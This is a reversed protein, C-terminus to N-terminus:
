KGMSFPTFIMWFAHFDMHFIHFIMFFSSFVDRLPAAGSPGSRGGVHRVSRRVIWITPNQAAGDTRVGGAMTRPSPAWPPGGGAMTRPSPPLPGLPPTLECTGARCYFVTGM